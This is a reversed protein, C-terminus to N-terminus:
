ANRWHAWVEIDTTITGTNKVWFHLEREGTGAIRRFEQKVIQVAAVGDPATVPWANLIYTEANANNWWRHVVQNPQVQTLTTMRLIGSSSM